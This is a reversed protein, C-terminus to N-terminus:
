EACCAASRATLSLALALLPRPELGWAGFDAGAAGSGVAAARSVEFGFDQSSGTAMPVTTTAAAATNKKMGSCEVVERSVEAATGEGAGAEGGSGAVGWTACAGAGVEGSDVDGSEAGGSGGACADTGPLGMPWGPLGMPWGTGAPSDREGAPRETSIGGAARVGAAVAEAAGGGAGTAAELEAATGRWDSGLVLTARSLVGTVGGLSGMALLRTCALVCAAELAGSEALEVGATGLAGTGPASVRTADAGVGGGAAAVGM